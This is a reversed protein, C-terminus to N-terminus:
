TGDHNVIRLLKFEIPQSPSVFVTLKLEIRDRESRYTVAGPTFAVNISRTAGACRRSHRVLVQKHALDYVYIVQGAPAMRGEGMRFPRSATSGRIAASPFFEGDNTLVAGQGFANAIVHAFPRPTGPQLRSAGGTRLFPTARKPRRRRCSAARARRSLARDLMEPAAPALGLHEAILGDGPGYRAGMRRRHGNGGRRAAALEVEVRLSACPEFGYLLGEDKPDRPAAGDLLSDPAHTSGMGYFRSKM